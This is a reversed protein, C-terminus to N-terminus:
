DMTLKTGECQEFIQLWRANYLGSLPLGALMKLTYTDLHQAVVCHPISWM